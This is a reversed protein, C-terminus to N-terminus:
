VRCVTQPRVIAAADAAVVEREVAKMTTALAATVDIDAAKV